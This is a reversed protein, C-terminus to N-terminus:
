AAAEALGSPEEMGFKSVRLEVEEVNTGDQRSWTWFAVTGLAKVDAEIGLQQDKKKM